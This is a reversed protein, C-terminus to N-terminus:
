TATRGHARPPETAVPEHETIRGKNAPKPSRLEELKARPPATLTGGPIFEPMIRKRIRGLGSNEVLDMVARLRHRALTAPPAHYRAPEPRLFSLFHDDDRCLVSVDDPVRLGMQSLRSTVTLYYQPHAVLLATPRDPRSMTRRILEDVHDATNRHYLVVISGSSGAPDGMGARFGRVSEIDGGLESQRLVLALRRHGAALMRGAAHRCLAAHDLDVFPLEVGPSPTGAVLCPLGATAFWQQVPAPCNVLVWALHPHRAVLRVLARGPRATFISRGHFIHLALGREALMARMEDIWLTQSPRMRELPDLALIAIARNHADGRRSAANPQLRNGQGHIPRVVGEQKLRSLAVRITTRSVQLQEGLLRESPLWEKWAGRLIEQRLTETIQATVTQRKVPNLM